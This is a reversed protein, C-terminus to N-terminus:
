MLLWIATHHGDQWSSESTAMLVLVWHWTITLCSGTILLQQLSAVTWRSRSDHTAIWRRPTIIWPSRTKDQYGPPVLLDLRAVHQLARPTPLWTVPELAVMTLKPGAPTFDCTHWHWTRTLTETSHRGRDRTGTDLTDLTWHQKWPPPFTTVFDWVVYPWILGCCQVNDAHSILSLKVKQGM